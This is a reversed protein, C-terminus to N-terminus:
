GGQTQNRKWGCPFHGSLYLDAKDRFVRTSLMDQYETEIVFHILDWQVRNRVRIRDRDNGEIPWENYSSALDTMLPRASDAITNWRQYEDLSLRRVQDRIQNAAEIVRDDSDKTKLARIAERWSQVWM